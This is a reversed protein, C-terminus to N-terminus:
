AATSTDKPTTLLAAVEARVEQYDAVARNATDVYVRSRKVPTLSSVDLARALLGRLEPGPNPIRIETLELLAAADAVRGDDTALKLRAILADDDLLPSLAANAALSVLFATYETQQAAHGRGQRAVWEAHFVASPKVTAFETDLASIREAFARVAPAISAAAGYDSRIREREADFDAVAARLDGAMEQLRFFARDDSM